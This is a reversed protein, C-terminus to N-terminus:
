RSTIHVSRGRWAMRLVRIMAPHSGMGSSQLADILEKDGFVRLASKAESIDQASFEALAAQEWSATQRQQMEAQVSYLRQLGDRNIGLEKAASAVSQTDPHGPDLGLETAYVSIDSQGADGGEAPQKSGEQSPQPQQPQGQAPQAQQGQQPQGQAPQGPQQGQQTANQGSSNPFLGSIRAARADHEQRAQHHQEQRVQADRAAAREQWTPGPQAAPQPQGEGSKGFVGGPHAVDPASSAPFATAGAAAAADNFDSM